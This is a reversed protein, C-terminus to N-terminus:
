FYTLPLFCSESAGPSGVQLGHRKARLHEFSTLLSCSHLLLFLCLYITFWSKKRNAKILEQLQTLVTRRLPQLVMATMILEIQASMVPPVLVQNFNKAAPDFTQPMMGLTEKSSIQESRSEM